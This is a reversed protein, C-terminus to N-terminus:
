LRRYIESFQGQVIRIKFMSCNAESTRPQSDLGHKILCLVPFERNAISSQLSTLQMLILTLLVNTRSGTPQDTPPVASRYSPRSFEENETSFTQCGFPTVLLPGM